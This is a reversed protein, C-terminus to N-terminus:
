AARAIAERVVTRSVGHAQALQQATPLRDGPRLAGTDIQSGVLVALQDSLCGAVLQHPRADPQGSPVASSTLRLM